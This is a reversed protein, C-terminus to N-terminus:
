FPIDDDSPTEGSTAPEPKSTSSISIRDSSKRSNSPTAGTGFPEAVIKGGKQLLIEVRNEAEALQQRCANSLTIGKEFLLISDELSLEGCELEQVIAELEEIGKEFSKPTLSTDPSGTGSPTLALLSEQNKETSKESRPPMAENYRSARATIAREHDGVIM